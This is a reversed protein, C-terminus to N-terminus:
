QGVEDINCGETKLDLVEIGNCPCAFTLEGNKYGHVLEDCDICKM